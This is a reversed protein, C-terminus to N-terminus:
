IHKSVCCKKYKCFRTHYCLQTLSRPYCQLKIGTTSALLGSHSTCTSIHGLHPQTERLKCWSEHHQVHWALGMTMGCNFSSVIWSVFKLDCNMPAMIWQWMFRLSEHAWRMAPFQFCHGSHSLCGHNTQVTPPCCATKYALGTVWHLRKRILFNYLLRFRLWSDLQILCLWYWDTLWAKKTQKSCWTKPMKTCVHHSVLLWFCM